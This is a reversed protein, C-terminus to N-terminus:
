SAHQLVEMCQPCIERPPTESGNTGALLRIQSIALALEDPIFTVQCVGCTQEAVKKPRMGVMLFVAVLAAIAAVSIWVWGSM